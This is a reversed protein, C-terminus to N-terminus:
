KFFISLSSTKKDISRVTNVKHKKKIKINAKGSNTTIKGDNFKIVTEYPCLWKAATSNNAIGM